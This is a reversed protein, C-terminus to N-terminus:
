LEPTLRSQLSAHFPSRSIEKQGQSGLEPKWVPARLPRHGAQTDARIEERTDPAPAPPQTPAVGAQRSGVCVKLPKKKNNLRYTMELEKHGWPSYGM